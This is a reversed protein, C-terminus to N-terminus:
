LLSKLWQAVRAVEALTARRPGHTMLVDRAATLIPDSTMTGDGPPIAASSSAAALGSSARDAPPSATVKAAHSVIVFLTVTTPNVDM